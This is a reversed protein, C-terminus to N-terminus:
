LSPRLIHLSSPRARGRTHDVQRMTVSTAMAPLEWGAERWPAVVAGKEFRLETAAVLPTVDFHWVVIADWCPAPPRAEQVLPAAVAARRARCTLQALHLAAVAEEGHRGDEVSARNDGAFAGGPSVLSRYDREMARWSSSNPSVVFVDVVAGLEALPAALLRRHAEFAARWLEHASGGGRPVSAHRGRFILAVRRPENAAAVVCALLNLYRM